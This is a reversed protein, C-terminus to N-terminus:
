LKATSIVVDFYRRTEVLANDLSIRGLNSTSIVDKVSTTVSDVFRRGDIDIDRQAVDRGSIFWFEVDNCRRTGVPYM